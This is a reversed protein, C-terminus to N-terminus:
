NRQHDSCVEAYPGKTTGRRACAWGRYLDEGIHACSSCRDPKSRNSDDVRCGNWSTCVQGFRFLTLCNGDNWQIVECSSPRCGEADMAAAVGLESLPAYVHDSPEPALRRLPEPANMTSVYVHTAPDPNQKAVVMTGFFREPPTNPARVVM